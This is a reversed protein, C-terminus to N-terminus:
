SETKKNAYVTQKYSHTFSYLINKFIDNEKWSSIKKPVFIYPSNALSELFFSFFMKADREWVTM